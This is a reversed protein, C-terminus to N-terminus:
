GALFRVNDSRPTLAPLRARLKQIGPKGARVILQFAVIENAAAFLKM